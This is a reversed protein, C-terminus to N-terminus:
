RGTVADLIKQATSALMEALAPDFPAIQARVKYQFAQLQNVAAFWNGRNFAAMAGNLIAALPQHDKASTGSEVVVLLSRAIPQGPTVVEVM